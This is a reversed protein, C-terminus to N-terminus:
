ELVEKWLKVWTKERPTLDDCREFKAIINQVHSVRVGGYQLSYEELSGPWLPHQKIADTVTVKRDAVNM